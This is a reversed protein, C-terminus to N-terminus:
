FNIAMDMPGSKLFRFFHRVFMNEFDRNQGENTHVKCSKKLSKWTADVMVFSM